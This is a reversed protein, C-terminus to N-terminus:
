DADALNRIAQATRPHRAPPESVAGWLYGLDRVDKLGEVSMAEEAGPELLILTPVEHSQLQKAVRNPALPNEDAGLFRVGHAELAELVPLLALGGPAVEAALRTATANASEPYPQATPEEFQSVSARLPKLLNLPEARSERYVESPMKQELEESPARRNVGQDSYRAISQVPHQIRNVLHSREQKPIM